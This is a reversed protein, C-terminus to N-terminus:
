LEEATFQVWQVLRDRLPEDIRLTCIRGILTEPNIMKEILLIRVFDRDKERYAALKSAAIDHVEVCWGTKGNTSIEDFVPTARLEWGKSLMAAEGISLGHVYFGHTQHFLSLEGLAGDIANIKDSRNKPQVDVEVSARLEEPANPFEGLIAQSGFIWLESDESVECAARIAHELQARTM